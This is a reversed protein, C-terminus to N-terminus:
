RRPRAGRSGAQGGGEGRRVPAGDQSAQGTAADLDVAAPVAVALGLGPRPKGGAPGHRAVRVVGASILTQWGQCRPALAIARDDIQLVNSGYDGPSIALLKRDREPYPALPPRWRSVPWLRARIM